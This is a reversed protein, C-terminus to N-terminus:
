EFDVTMRHKSSIVDAKINNKDFLKQLKEAAEFRNEGLSNIYETINVTKNGTLLEKIIQVLVENTNDMEDGESTELALGGSASENEISKNETITEILSPKEEDQVTKEEVQVPKEEVPIPKEEVPEAKEEVPIPKEEVPEAKEEVPEAKEEVPIPKEEVPEAKEEVPIPKEEVPEAKEETTPSESFPDVWKEEIPEITEDQKNQETSKETSSTTEEDDFIDDDEKETSEEKSVEEFNDSSTEFPDDSVVKETNLKDKTTQWQERAEQVRRQEEEKTYEVTKPTSLVGAKIEM